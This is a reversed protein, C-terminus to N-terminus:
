KSLSEKTKVLFPIWAQITTGEGPLSEISFKGNIMEIRERMGILGLRRNKKPNLAKEVDFSKGNDKIQLLLVRPFSQFRVTVMTAEAHQAVNILAEHVVRYLVTRKVSSLTELGEFSVLRVQIGTKKKFDKMFSHLSPILGLDDLTTPRLKRAFRHVSTISKKVLRQTHAVNKKLEKQNVTSTNVLSELHVNIGVLTQTIEDHLEHSIRKREDEQVHLMQHSLRRLQQKMLNSEKLSQALHEEDKRHITEARKRQVIEKKLAQETTEMAMAIQLDEEAIRATMDVIAMQCVCASDNMSPLSVGHAIAPFSSNDSRRFFLNCCQKESEGFASDFSSLFLSRSEDTMFECLSRHLLMKQDVGLLTSGMRNVELIQGEENLCFLGIPACDFFVSERPPKITVGEPEHKM